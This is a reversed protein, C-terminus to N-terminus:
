PTTELAPLWSSVMALSAADSWKFDLRFLQFLVIPGNKKKKKWERRHSQQGKDKRPHRASIEVAKEIHLKRLATPALIAVSSREGHLHFSVRLENLPIFM